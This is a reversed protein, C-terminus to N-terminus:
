LKCQPMLIAEKGLRAELLDLIEM